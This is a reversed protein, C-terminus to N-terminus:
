VDGELNTGTMIKSDRSKGISRQLELSVAPVSVLVNDLALSAVELHRLRRGVREGSGTGTRSRRLVDIDPLRILRPHTRTSLEGYLEVVASCMQSAKLESNDSDGGKEKGKNM